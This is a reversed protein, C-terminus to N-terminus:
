IQKETWSLTWFVEHLAWSLPWIFLTFFQLEGHALPGKPVSEWLPFSWKLKWCTEKKLINAFCKSLSGWLFLFRFTGFPLDFMVQPIETFLSGKMSEIHNPDEQESFSQYCLNESKWWQILKSVLARPDRLSWTGKHTCKYKWSSGHSIHFSLSFQSRLPLRRIDLIDQVNLTELKFELWCRKWGYGDTIQVWELVM